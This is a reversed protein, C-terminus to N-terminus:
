DMEREVPFEGKEVEYHVEGDFPATFKILNDIKRLIAQQDIYTMNKWWQTPHYNSTIVLRKGIWSKEGYYVKLSCTTVEMMTKLLPLPIWGEFEELILDDDPRHNFYVAGTSPASILKRNSPSTIKLASHTKGGGSEGYFVTVIPKETREIRKGKAAYFKDVAAHCRTWTGQHSDMVDEVTAGARISDYMAAIDTRQGQGDPIDSDDGIEAPMAGPERTREKHCYRKAEGHKGRRAAVHCGPFLRRVTAKTKQGNFVVYAQYHLRQTTPTREMQYCAYRIDHDEYREMVEDFHAQREEGFVTIMWNPSRNANSIVDEAMVQEDQPIDM